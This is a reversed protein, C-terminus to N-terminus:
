KIEVQVPNSTLTIATAGANCYGCAESSEVSEDPAGNVPLRLTRANLELIDPLFSLMLGETYVRVTTSITVAYIGPRLGPLRALNLNLNEALSARSFLVESFHAADTVTLRNGYGIDATLMTYHFVDHGRRDRIQVTYAPVSCCGWFPEKDSPQHTFDTEFVLALPITDKTTYRKGPVTALAFLFRDNQGCKSPYTRRYVSDRGYPCAAIDKTTPLSMGAQQLQAQAEEAWLGGGDLYNSLNAIRSYPELPEAHSDTLMSRRLNESLVRGFIYAKRWQKAKCYCDLLLDRTTLVQRDYLMTIDYLSVIPQIGKPVFDRLGGTGDSHSDTKPKPRPGITVSLLYGPHDRELQELEPIVEDYRNLKFLCRCKLLRICANGEPSVEKALAQDLQRIAETFKEIAEPSLPANPDPVLSPAQPQDASTPATQFTLGPFGGSDPPTEPTEPTAAADVVTFPSTSTAPVAPAAPQVPPAVAAPPAAPAVSVARPADEAEGMLWVAEALEQPLAYAAMGLSLLVGLVIWRM